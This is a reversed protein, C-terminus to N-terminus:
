AWYQTIKISVWFFLLAFDTFEHEREKHYPASLAHKLLHECLFLIGKTFMVFFLVAVHIQATNSGM